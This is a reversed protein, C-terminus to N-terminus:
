KMARIFQIYKKFLEFLKLYKSKIEQTKIIVNYHMFQNRKEICKSLFEVDFEDIKISNYRNIRKLATTTNVTEKPTDINSYILCEHMNLLIDKLLLEVAQVLIVFTIKFKTADQPKIVEENHIWEHIMNYTDISNELYDYSNDLIELKVEIIGGNM